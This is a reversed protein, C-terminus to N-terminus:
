MILFETRLTLVTGCVAVNNNKNDDDNNTNNNNNTNTNTTIIIITILATILTNMNQLLIDMDQDLARM